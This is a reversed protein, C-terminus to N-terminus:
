VCTKDEGDEELKYLGLPCNLECYKGGMIILNYM